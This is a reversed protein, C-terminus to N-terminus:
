QPTLLLLGLETLGLELILRSSIAPNAEYSVPRDTSQDHIGKYLQLYFATFPIELIALWEALVATSKMQVM